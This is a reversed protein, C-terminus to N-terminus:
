QAEIEGHEFITLNGYIQGFDTKEEKYDFTIDQCKIFEEVTMVEERELDGDMNELIDNLYLMAYKRLQREITNM